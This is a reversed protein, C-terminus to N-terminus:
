KLRKIILRYGDILSQYGDKDHQNKSRKISLTYGAILSEYGEKLQNNDPINDSTQTALSYLLEDLETEAQAGEVSKANNNAIDILAEYGKVLTEDKYLVSQQAATLNQIKYNM